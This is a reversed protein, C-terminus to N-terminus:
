LGWVRRCTDTTLLSHGYSIVTDRTSTEGPGAGKKRKLRTLSPVLVGIPDSTVRGTKRVSRTGGQSPSPRSQDRYTGITGRVESSSVGTKEWDRRVSELRTSLTM